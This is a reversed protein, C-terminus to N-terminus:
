KEFEWHKDIKAEWNGDESQRFIGHYVHRISPGRFHIDFFHLQLDCEIPGITVTKVASTPIDAEKVRDLYQLLLEDESHTIMDVLADRAAQSTLM